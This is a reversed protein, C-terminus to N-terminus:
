DVFQFENSILLVQALREWATLDRPAPGTFQTASKWGSGGRSRRGAGLRVTWTFGDHTPNSRCETVFDITDGKRVRVFRVRTDVQQNHATWEGLIGRSSSIILAHVGDGEKRPHHLRGSISLFGDRPATWRRVAAHKADNGPHGGNANLLVWGVNADPLKSGGQWQSGTWHKLTTFGIVRKKARDVKGYGYQWVPDGSRRKAVSAAQPKATFEMAIKLEGDDPARGYAALYLKRVRDADDKANKVEPRAALAAAQEMEFASNLLFLAQQPVSTQFRKPCHTDPSAFDFARFLGPLNQRDVFGYITRRRSFPQTTLKVAPGGITLDLRGAAALVYDRSAEFDPRRRNMRWLLSNEPDVKRAEPRDVSRQRYTRSLVIRRILKKVSWGDQMFRVALHDLLKPHSPPDCRTGFDSPTTVMGKGFLHGWVRNVFVRATLPNDPSAIAKALQLRGSGDRYPKQDDPSLVRIFRRPTIPGPNRPSGRLLIRYDHPNRSDTLFLVDSTKRPERSSAFIGYLGYYDATNIPDYKHDHCRSCTVTLGMLGRTTVDIRDDIIDNRNNLFRRGLTLFGMADLAQRDKPLRDAALQEIIFRDYPLDENLSKVVWDRYKYANRYNRDQTFVYGKTDAYRAVDLWHRAWREGFHPSKLLEDVLRTYADPSRDGEFRAIDAATPPLGLLDFYLRRILTGRSADPSPTLGKGELRALVYRDVANAPWSAHKVKVPPVDEPKQFAWHAREEETIRLGPGISKPEPRLTKAGAAIWTEITAIQQKSLKKKGPPMEGAKVRNLLESKGPQGPVIAPGSEGGKLMFRVLRLDLKGKMDATAGHCGACNARLIPRVNKEFTPTAPTRGKASRFVVKPPAATMSSLPIAAFLVACLLVPLRTRM